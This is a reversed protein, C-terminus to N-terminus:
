EEVEKKRTWPMEPMSGWFSRHGDAGTSGLTQRPVVVIDQGGVQRIAEAEAKDKVRFSKTKKGFNYQKGDVLIGSMPRTTAPIVIYDKVPM